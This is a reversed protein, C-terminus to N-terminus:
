NTTSITFCSIVASFANRYKQAHNQFFLGSFFVFFISDVCIPLSALTYLMNRWWWLGFFVNIISVEESLPLSWPKLLSFVIKLSSWLPHYSCCSLLTTIFILIRFVVGNYSKYVRIYTDTKRSMTGRIKSTSCHSVIHGPKGCFYCHRRRAGRDSTTRNQSAGLKPVYPWSFPPFGYPSSAFTM